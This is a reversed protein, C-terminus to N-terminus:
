DVSHLSGTLCATTPRVLLHLRMTVKLKHDRVLRFQLMKYMRAADHKVV